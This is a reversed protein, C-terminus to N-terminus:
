FRPADFDPRLFTMDGDGLRIGIATSKESIFREVLPVIRHTQSPKAAKPEMVKHVLREFDPLVVNSEISSDRRRWPPMSVSEDTWAAGASTMESSAGSM